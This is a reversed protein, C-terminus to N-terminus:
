RDGVGLGSTRRSVNAGACCADRVRWLLAESASGAPYHRSAAQVAGFARWCSARGRTLDYRGLTALM